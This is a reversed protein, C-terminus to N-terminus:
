GALTYAIQADTLRKLDDPIRRVNIWPFRNAAQAIATSEAGPDLALIAGGNADLRLHSRIFEARDGLSVGLLAVAQWGLWAARIASAQDEVLLAGRFCKGRPQYWSIADATEVALETKAKPRCHKHLCYSVQGNFAGTPGRIPLLIHSCPAPGELIGERAIMPRTLGWRSEMLALGASSPTRGETLSRLQRFETFVPTGCEGAEALVRRTYRCTARYCHIHAGYAEYLAGLSREHSRGGKCRPCLLGSRRGQGRIVEAVATMLDAPLEDLLLPEYSRVSTSRHAVFTGRM